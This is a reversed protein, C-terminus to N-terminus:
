RKRRMAKRAEKRAVKESQILAAQEQEIALGQPTEMCFAGLEGSRSESVLLRSVKELDVRGGSVICGRKRAITELLEIESQPLPEIHYRQILREPYTQM